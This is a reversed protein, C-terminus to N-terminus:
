YLKLTPAPEPAPECADIENVSARSRVKPRTQCGTTDLCRMMMRGNPYDLEIRLPMLPEVGLIGDLEPLEPRLEERLAQLTPHADDVIAFRVPATLVTAAATRCFRANDRCPCDRVRFGPQRFAVDCGGLSMVRNAYLERCPGRDASDEGILTMANLEAIRASLPGSSLHVIGEPLQSLPLAAPDTRQYRDYATSSLLSVGLGTSILFLADVGSDELEEPALFCAGVTLRRGPFNAEAGGILLTGGGHFPNSFVADCARGREADTGATDPFFRIAGDPFDFRVSSRGLVDAGIIGEIPTSDGDLGVSCGVEVGGTACPHLEFAATDPFRVRPITAEGLADLGFLTLEVRRRRADPLEDGLRFSDLVTIPSLTDIVVDPPVIRDAISDPNALAGVIVPGNDTRVLLPFPDITSKFEDECGTAAIIVGAVAIRLVLGNRGM